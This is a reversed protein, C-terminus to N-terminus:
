SGNLITGVAQRVSGQRSAPAQALAAEAAAKAGDADGLKDSTLALYTQTWWDDTTGTLAAEFEKRADEWLDRRFLVYGYVRRSAVGRAPADAAQLAELLALGRGNEIARTVREPLEEDFWGGPDRALAQWHTEWGEAVQGLIIQVDGLLVLAPTYNPDVILAARLVEEAGAADGDALLLRGLGLWSRMHSPRLKVARRHAEIAAKRRDPDRADQAELTGIDAYADYRWVNLVLAREFSRRAVETLGDPGLATWDTLAIATPDDPPPPNLSGESGPQGIAGALVEGLLLPYLDYMPALHLARQLTAARNPWSAEGKFGSKAYMDAAPVRWQWILLLLAAGVVAGMMMLRRWSLSQRRGRSGTAQPAPSVSLNAAAWAGTLILLWMGGFLLAPYSELYLWRQLVSWLLLVVSMLGAGAVLPSSAFLEPAMARDARSRRGRRDRERLSPAPPLSAEGDATQQQRMPTRRAQVAVLAALTWASWGSAATLFASQLEVIHGALAALLGSALIPRPGQRVAVIGCWGAAGVLLVWTVVGLAGSTVLTDVFVNHARDEKVRFVGGPFEGPTVTQSYAIDFTEPGWGVLRRLSQWRDGIWEAEPGQRWARLGATWAVLRSRVSIASESVAFPSLRRLSPEQRLRDLPLAPINLAILGLAALGVVIGM